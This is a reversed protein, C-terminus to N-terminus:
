CGVKDFFSTRATMGILISLLAAIFPKNRLIQAKGTALEKVLAKLIDAKGGFVDDRASIVIALLLLVFFLGLINMHKNYL